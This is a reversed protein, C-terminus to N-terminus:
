TLYKLLKDLLLQYQVPKELYDDCGSEFMRKKDNELTYATLAIIPLGPYRKKIKKTAEIGDMVPMKIDMLILDPLNGAESINVAELGNEVRIVNLKLTNLFEYVLLFNNTEDEAVLITKNQLLAIKSVGSDTKVATKTKIVQKYPLTFFFVSGKGPQSTLKINGGLLEIYGKSLALGLGTGGYKRTASNDVQRFREFIIKNMKEPIGIGTDEVFFQLGGEVLTYGFRVYGKHTFKLANGVLNVLIQMLKVPDTYVIALEDSLATHYSFTVEPSIPNLLFQEYVNLLILNIDTKKEEIQEQGSELTALAIIGSIISLLQDNSINIINIFEKRKATTLEPNGLFSSFGIIANLPTRIEHSINQLFATKLHDSEEAKEKAKILEEEAEKLKTIDRSMGFTGIINGKANRLPMKTTLVWRPPRDFWTELEEKGIIPKGTKIIEQEDKYAQQSHETRFFDNDSKGLAQLPDKLCFLRAMAQNIRIFRSELDKFYINDPINEILSHVMYQEWILKEEMQKRSRILEKKELATKIASGVRTIHEKIVYDDAGAKMVEVATEENISGTVLIFPILPALDNRLILAQMGDFSPLSYDSIILDPNYEQLAKIYADKTEVILEIFQINSKKIERKILEADSSVDEVMLIKLITGM